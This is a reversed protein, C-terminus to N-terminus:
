IAKPDALAAALAARHTPPLITLFDESLSRVIEGKLLGATKGGALVNLISTIRLVVRERAFRRLFEDLEAARGRSLGLERSSITIAFAPPMSVTSSSLVHGILIRHNVMSQKTTPKHGARQGTGGIILDGSRENAAIPTANTSSRGATPRKHRPRSSSVM